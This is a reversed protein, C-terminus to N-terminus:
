TDQKGDLIKKVEKKFNKVGVEPILVCRCNPHLPPSVTTEYDLNLTQGDATISDGRKFFAQKLTVTKGHMPACWPCVREDLATYWTKGVVVGSQDWVELEAIGQARVTETRAIVEARAPSFATSALIRKELDEIAEGAELGASITSRLKNTTVRTMEGALKKTNKSIAESIKPTLVVAEDGFIGLFELASLGEVETIETLLPELLDITVAVEKERDIVNPALAKWNKKALAAILNNIARQAQGTWLEKLQRNFLAEFELGNEDRQKVRVDGVKEFINIEEETKGELHPFQPSREVEVCDECKAGDHKVHAKKLKLGKIIAEAITKSVPKEVPAAKGAIPEGLPVLNMPGTVADGGKILPLDEMRRVDNISLWSNKLGSEYGKLVLDRDELIPSVHEFFMGETNAFLPLYFENLTNDIKTMKPDVTNVAFAYSAAKASAYTENGTFGAVTLPVRFIAMIEDRNFKRGELYEMDRQSVQFAEIKLGGSAVATRFQRSSGGHNQNWKEVLRKQDDDTLTEPFTLIVDPRADNDFYKLNYNKASNDTDAAIRAANLTSLGVIDSLPNYKKFHLIQDPSLNFTEGDVRYVYGKIYVDRGPVPTVSNVPLPLIADPQGGKYLIFWYENGHLEQNSQLREFLDFQTMFDNAKHLLELSPHDFIQEINGKSDKKFLKFEVEAVRTAITDVALYVWGTYFANNRRSSGRAFSTFRAQTSSILPIKSIAKKLYDFIKM